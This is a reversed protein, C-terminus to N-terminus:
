KKRKGLGYRRRESPVWLLDPIFCIGVSLCMSFLGSCVLLALAWGQGCTLVTGAFGVFCVGACLLNSWNLVLRLGLIPNSKPAERVLRTLLIRDTRTHTKFKNRATKVNKYGCELITELHLTWVIFFVLGNFAAFFLAILVAQWWAFHAHGNWFNWFVEM